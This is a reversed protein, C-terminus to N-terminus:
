QHTLHGFSQNMPVIIMDQGQEHIHAVDLNPM